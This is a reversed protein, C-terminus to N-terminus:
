GLIALAACVPQRGTGAADLDWCLTHKGPAATYQLMEIVFSEDGRAQIMRAEPCNLEFAFSPTKEGDLTQRYGRCPSLVVPQDGTNHLDIVYVIPRDGIVSTPVSITATLQALPDVPLPALTQSVPYPYLHTAWVGCSTPVTLRSANSEPGYTGPLAVNVSGTGPLQATLYTAHPPSTQTTCGFSGSVIFAAMAGSAIDGVPVASDFFGGSTAVIAAHGPEDLVVRPYNQALCTTQSTNTLEVVVGDNGTAGIAGLTTVSLESAGCPPAPSPAPSPLPTPLYPEFALPAWRVATAPIVLHGAAVPAAPSSRAPTASSCGALSASVAGVVVVTRVRVATLFGPQDFLYREHAGM